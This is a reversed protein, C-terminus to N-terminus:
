VKMYRQNRSNPKDPITMRILNMDVAPSLYNRRFGERSRLGLKEMLTKSTYSIDYEMVGLLKKIYESLQENDASIQASFNM